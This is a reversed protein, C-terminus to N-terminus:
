KINSEQYMIIYKEAVVVSDFEKNMADYIGKDKESVWYDIRDEYKKIIDVTGDTSGGEGKRGEGEPLFLVTEFKDEANNIIESKEKTV